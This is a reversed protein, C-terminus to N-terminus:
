DFIQFSLTSNTHYCAMLLVIRWMVSCGINHLYIYLEVEWGPCLLDKMTMTRRLDGSPYRGDLFGKRGAQSTGIPKGDSLLYLFFLTFHKLMGVGQEM